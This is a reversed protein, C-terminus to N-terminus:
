EKKKKEKSMVKVVDFSAEVGGANSRHKEISKRGMYGVRGFRSGHGGYGYGGTGFGGSSKAM